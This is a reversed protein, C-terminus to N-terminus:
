RRALPHRRNRLARSSDRVHVPFSHLLQALALTVTAFYIGQRRIGPQLDHMTPLRATPMFAPDREAGTTLQESGGGTITGGSHEESLDEVPDIESMGPVRIPFARPMVLPSQVM